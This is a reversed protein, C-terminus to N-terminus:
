AAEVPRLLRQLGIQRLIQRQPLFADRGVELAVAGPVEALERAALAEHVLRDRLALEVLREILHLAPVEVLVQLFLVELLEDVARGSGDSIRPRLGFWNPSRGRDAY